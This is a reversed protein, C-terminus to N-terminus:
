PLDCIKHLQLCLRRGGGMFASKVAQRVNAANRAPDKDDQPQVWVEGCYSPWPRQVPVGAGLSDTPLGDAPDVKGDAVVYKLHRVFQMLRKNVSGTKPSCVLTVRRHDYPFGELYLTGNTEVQVDHGDALRCALPGVDQRFPEGGTIVVLGAGCANVRGVADLVEAVAMLRRRSTYDTDCGPCQLDCGALRVFVAPRGAFPGEGQITLFVDQVDLAGGPRLEQKEAPQTNLAPLPTM